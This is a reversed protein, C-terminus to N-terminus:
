CWDAFHNLCKEQMHPYCKERWEKIQADHSPVWLGNSLKEIPLTM